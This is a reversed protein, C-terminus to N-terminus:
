LFPVNPIIYKAAIAYGLGAWLGAFTWRIVFQIMANTDTNIPSAM